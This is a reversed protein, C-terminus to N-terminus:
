SNEIIEIGEKMCLTCSYKGWTKMSSIPNLTSLTGFSMTKRCEQPSPKQTFQKAFHNTFSVLNKNNVVKQAVDQFHQEMRKKLTNQTNGFYFDGCCKCMVKYIVCCILCEGGYACRGKVKTTTNCNFEIDLFDKSALNCRIKSVLDGQLLEGLNPFIHYSM